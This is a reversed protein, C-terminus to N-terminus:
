QICLNYLLGKTHPVTQNQFRLFTLFHNRPSNEEIHTEFNCWKLLRFINSLLMTYTKVNTIAIVDWNTGKINKNMYNEKELRKYEGQLM